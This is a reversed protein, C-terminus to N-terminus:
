RECANRQVLAEGSVPLPQGGPRLVPMQLEPVRLAASHQAQQLPEAQTVVWPLGMLKLAVPTSTPTDRM